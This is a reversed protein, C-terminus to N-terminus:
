KGERERRRYEEFDRRRKLDPPPKPFYFAEVNRMNVVIKVLGGRGPDRDGACHTVEEFILEELDGCVSADLAQPMCLTITYGGVWYGCVQQGTNKDVECCWDCEITLKSFCELLNNRFHAPDPAVTKPPMKGLARAYASELAKKVDAKQGDTLKDCSSFTGFTGGLGRGTGPMTSLVQQKLPYKAKDAGIDIGGEPPAAPRMEQLGLPDAHLTPRLLAHTKSRVNFIGGTLLPDVQAFASRFPHYTRYPYHYRRNVSNFDVFDPDLEKQSFRYDRRPCAIGSTM